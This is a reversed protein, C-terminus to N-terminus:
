PPSLPNTSPNFYQLMDASFYTYGLLISVSVTFWIPQSYASNLKALATAKALRLDFQIVPDEKVFNFEDCARM